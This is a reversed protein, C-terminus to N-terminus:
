DAELQRERWRRLCRCQPALNLSEHDIGSDDLGKYSNSSAGPFNPGFTQVFLLVGFIALIVACVWTRIRLQRRLSAIQANSSLIAERDDLEDSPIQTYKPPLQANM